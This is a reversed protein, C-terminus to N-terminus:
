EKVESEKRSDFTLTWPGASVTFCDLDQELYYNTERIMQEWSILALGVKAIKDLIMESTM